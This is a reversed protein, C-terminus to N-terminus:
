KKHKGEMYKPTNVKFMLDGAKVVYGEVDGLVGEVRQLDKVVKKYIEEQIPLLAQRVSTLLADRHQTEARTIKEKNTRKNAISSAEQKYQEYDKAVSKIIAEAKLREEKLKIPDFVDINIGVFKVDENSASLLQSKIKSPDVDGEIRIIGFTSWNGLKSRRYSTAVFTLSHLDDKVFGNPTYMWELQILCHKDGIIPEVINKIPDFSKVFAEKAPPFKVGQALQEATYAKGSYSSRIFFGNEDKGVTLSMGDLKESLSSSSPSIEDNNQKLFNIFKVFTEYNMSYLEPKNASWIHPIGVRDGEAELLVQKFYQKFTIM